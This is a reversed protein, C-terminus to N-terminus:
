GYANVVIDGVSTEGVIRIERGFACPRSAGEKVAETGVAGDAGVFIGDFDDALVSVIVSLSIKHVIGFLRTGRRDGMEPKARLWNTRGIEDFACIEDAAM